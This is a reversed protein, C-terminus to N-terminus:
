YNHQIFLTQTGESLLRCKRHDGGTRRAAFDTWTVDVMRGSNNKIKALSDRQDHDYIIM